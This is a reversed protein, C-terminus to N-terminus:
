LSVYLSLCLYLSLSPPLSPPHSFLPPLLPLPFRSVEADRRASEVAGSVPGLSNRQPSLSLSIRPLDLTSPGQSPPVPSHFLSALLLFSAHKHLPPPPPCAQSAESPDLLPVAYHALWEVYPLRAAM